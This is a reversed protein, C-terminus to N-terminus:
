SGHKMENVCEMTVREPAEIILRPSYGSSASEFRMPWPPIPFDEEIQQVGIVWCGPLYDPWDKGNYQGYVNVSEGGSSLQFVIPSGSGCNDYDNKFFNYEGFTDDSYGEFILTPM